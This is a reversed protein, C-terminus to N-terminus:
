TFLTEQQHNSPVRKEMPAELFASITPPIQPRQGSLLQQITIIQIKPYENKWTTSVYPSTLKAERIMEKTPEELTLFIGIAANQRAVVDRLEHIDKIGIHGSKVQVVIRQVHGEVGDAFRMWGDM